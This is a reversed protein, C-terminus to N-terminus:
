RGRVIRNCLDSAERNRKDPPLALLCNTIAAHENAKENAKKQEDVFRNIAEVQAKSSEKIAATLSQMTQETETKHQALAYVGYGMLCVAGLAILDGLRYGKARVHQGAVTVDLEKDGNEDPM